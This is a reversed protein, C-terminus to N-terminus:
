RGETLIELIKKGTNRKDCFEWRIHYEEAVTKMTKYLQPGPTPQKRGGSSMYEKINAEVNGRVPIGNQLCYSYRRPNIWNRVDELCRVKPGEEVLVVLEIGAEHARVAEAVFRDHQRTLNGTVELLNQKRDVVKMGNSLLQYDGVYLKSSIHKLGIRDFYAVISKIARPKERTDIVVVDSQKLRIM